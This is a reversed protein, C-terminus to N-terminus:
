FGSMNKRSFIQADGASASESFVSGGPVRGSDKKEGDIELMGKRIDEIITRNSWYGNPIDQEHGAYAIRVWEAFVATKVLDPTDEVTSTARRRKYGGAMLAGDVYSEAQSITTDLRDTTPVLAAVMDEGIAGVLYERNIYM